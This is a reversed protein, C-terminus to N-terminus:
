AGSHSQLKEFPVADEMVRRADLGARYRSAVYDMLSPIGPEFSDGVEWVFGLRKFQEFAESVATENEGEANLAGKITEILETDYATAPRGASSIRGYLGSVAVAAELLRNKRLEQYRNGYYLRIRKDARPAAREMHEPLIRSPPDGKAAEEMLAWCVAQGWVQLFYPYGNSRRVAQELAQEDFSVGREALPKVLADTAAAHNLRDLPLLLCQDWFSVHMRNLHDQLAPTGAMMLLVPLGATRANQALDFLAGGVGLDLEHAEDVTILFPGESARAALVDAVLPQKETEMALKVASVQIEKATKVRGLFRKWGGKPSLAQRLEDEGPIMKATLAALQLSKGSKEVFARIRKAAEHMLVTKGNGRPGVIVISSPPIQIEPDAYGLREAVSMIESLEPERGALFPPASGEGPVFLSALSVQEQTM